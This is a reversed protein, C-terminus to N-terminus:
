LKGHTQGREGGRSVCGRGRSLCRTAIRGLGTSPPITNSPMRGFNFRNGVGCWCFPPRLFPSRREALGRVVLPLAVGTTLAALQRVRL